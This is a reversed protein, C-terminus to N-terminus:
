LQKDIQLITQNILNLTYNNHTTIPYHQLLYLLCLSDFYNLTCKASRTKKRSLLWIKKELTEINYYYAKEIRDKFIMIAKNKVLQLHFQIPYTYLTDWENPTHHITIQM